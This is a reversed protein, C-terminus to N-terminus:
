PNPFIDHQSLKEKFPESHLVEIFQNIGPASDKYFLHIPFVLPYDRYIINDVAPPFPVIDGRNIVSLQKLGRSPFERQLTFLLFADDEILKAKTESPSLTKTVDAGEPAGGLIMKRFLSYGIAKYGTDVVVRITKSEWGTSDELIEEWRTISNQTPKQTIRHLQEISISQQPYGEAVYTYLVLYGLVISKVGEKTEGLYLCADAYGKEFASLGSESGKLDFRISALDDQEHVYEELWPSLYDSGRILLDAQATVSYFLLLLLFLFLGKNMSRPM